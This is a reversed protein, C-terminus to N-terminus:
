FPCVVSPNAPAPYRHLVLFCMETDSSEGFSVSRDTTNNFTCEIDIVDGADMELPEIPVVVQNEFEFPGDHLLTEGQATHAVGKMHVGLQHMHPQVAFLTNPANITCQGSVKTERGAPLSFLAPGALLSEAAHEIEDATTRLIEIGSTGTLRENGTNYVHLNLLMQKGARLWMGVGPPYVVTDTGVGSGFIGQPSLASGCGRTLGDSNFGPDGLTTATHHTGLPNLARIAKFYVDEQLTVRQCYTTEEVAGLEWDASILVEWEEEPPMEMPPMNDVPEPPTMPNMVPPPTTPNTPMAPPTMPM